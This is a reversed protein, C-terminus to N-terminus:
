AKEGLLKNKGPKIIVKAKNKETKASRIKAAASLVSNRYMTLLDQKCHRLEPSINLGNYNM